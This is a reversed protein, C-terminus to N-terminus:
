NHFAEVDVGARVLREYADQYSDVLRQLMAQGQLNEGLTALQMACREPCLVNPQSYCLGRLEIVM